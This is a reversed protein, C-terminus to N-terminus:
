LRKLRNLEEVDGNKKSYYDILQDLGIRYQEDLMSVTSDVDDVAILEIWINLMYKIYSFSLIESPHERQYKEESRIFMRNVTILTELLKRTLMDLPKSHLIFSCQERIDDSNISANQDMNESRIQELEDYSLLIEDISGKRIRRNKRPIQRRKYSYYEALITQNNPQLRVCEKMTLEYEDSDLSMKLGCAKYYLALFDEGDDKLIM